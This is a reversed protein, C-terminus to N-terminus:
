LTPLGSTKWCSPEVEESCVFGNVVSYTKYGKQDLIKAVKSSRMGSKCMVFVVKNKDIDLNEVTTEFDPNPERGNKTDLLYSIFYTNLGLEKGNPKGDLIGV